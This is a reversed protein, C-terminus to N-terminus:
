NSTQDLTLSHLCRRGSLFQTLFLSQVTNYLAELAHRQESVLSPVTWAGRSRREGLLYRATKHQPRGVGTRPSCPTEIREFKM